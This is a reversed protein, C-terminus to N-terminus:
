QSNVLNFRGISFPRSRADRGLWEKSRQREIGGEYFRGGKLEPAAQRVLSGGPVVGRKSGIFQGTIWNKRWKWNKRSRSAGIEQRLLLHIKM